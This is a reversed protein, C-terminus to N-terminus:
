KNGLWMKYDTLDMAVVAMDKFDSVGAERARKMLTGDDEIHDLFRGLVGRKQASQGIYVLATPRLICICYIYPKRRSIEIDSIYIKSMM